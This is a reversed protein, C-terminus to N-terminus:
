RCPAPRPSGPIAQRRSPSFLTLDEVRGKGGAGRGRAGAGGRGRRGGVQRQLAAVVGRAEPKLPDTIAMVAVPAADIAVLVCTEGADEHAAPRHLRPEPPVHHTLVCHAPSCPAAAVPQQWALGVGERGCRGGGELDSFVVPAGQMFSEAIPSAAVGQEQMLLRNGIALRLGGKKSGGGGGGGGDGSGRRAQHQWAGGAASARVLAGWPMDATVGMGPHSTVHSVRVGGAGSGRPGGARRRGPSGAGSAGGPSVASDRSSLAGGEAPAWGDATDGSSLTGGGGGRRRRMPSGLPSGPGGGAPEAAGNAGGERPWASFSLEGNAGGGRPQGAGSSSASSGSAVREQQARAAAAPGGDGGDGEDISEKLVDFPNREAGSAGATDSTLLGNPDDSAIVRAAYELVARALPHESASEAAAALECV